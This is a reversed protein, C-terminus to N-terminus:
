RRTFLSPDDPAIVKGNQIVTGPPPLPDVLPAPPNKAGLKPVTVYCGLQRVGLKQVTVPANPDANKPLKLYAGVEEGTKKLYIYGGESTVTLEDVDNCSWHVMTVDPATVHPTISFVYSDADNRWVSYNSIKANSRKLADLDDSTMKCCRESEPKWGGAYQAPVSEDILMNNPHPAMTWRAPRLACGSDV